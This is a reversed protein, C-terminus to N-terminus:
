MLLIGTLNSLVSEPGSRFFPEPGYFLRIMLSTAAPNWRFGAPVPIRGKSEPGWFFPVFVSIHWKPHIAVNDM